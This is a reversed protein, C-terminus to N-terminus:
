VLILKKKIEGLQKEEEKKRLYDKKQKLLLIKIILEKKQNVRTKNSCKQFVRWQIRIMNPLSLILHALKLILIDYQSSESNSSSIEPNPNFMDDSSINEIFSDFSFNFLNEKNPQNM